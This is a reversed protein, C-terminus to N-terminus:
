FFAAEACSLSLVALVAKARGSFAALLEEQFLADSLADLLPSCRCVRQLGGEGCPSKRVMLRLIKTPLGRFVEPKSGSDKM